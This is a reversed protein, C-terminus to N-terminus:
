SFLDLQRDDGIVKDFNLGLLELIPEAIPRIQKQVYHERDIPSATEGVPEPGASTMVYSILRGPRKSMKRAAAVHPPTTATYSRLPKRLAKRYILLDKMGGERVDSVIRELYEGVDRNAFLRRYLERQVQKALETWDRRVAEMGVFRLEESEGRRLLGVYRKRAGGRSHRMPPLHLKRYLREFELELRSEVGWEARVHEAIERNLRAALRHGLQEAAADEDEGSLVFLSDTDGYLVQFGDDELRKKCWLLMERGFSTIAGALESRHFRCAPAGLVGYFSNMLIKIAHSAVRDGREKAAERRPFLEDLLKPLIGPCRRFAAGNPAVILDEGKRRQPAFGLPDIQFTRILSPYLSKFDFVAVNRYLGPRPELVHGGPNSSVTQNSEVSPAAVQRKHLESLYLFDFAAISGSVRDVPLGTLLSRQVALEVLQLKELIELALRADTLNYEVFRERDKEYNALIAEARHSGGLTKGEGLVKRAVFDLSYDDMKVFSRRLLQIGDLAVRGAILAEYAAWPFRSPRLRLPGPERGLHLEARTHAARNAMVSLDFDVVNWGTLIDPDLERVRRAFGELLDKESAFSVALPPTPSSEPNLLLVESAGCGHLAVSLLRTATPNTEIDLSLVKLLPQCRSPGIRPNEYVRSLRHRSRWPGELQLSGRIGRDILFRMAFRVDAEYCRIGAKQLRRRLAPTDSPKRAQVRATKGGDFTTWDSAAMGRVGLQAAHEAQTADIYFYPVHRDDRVLFSEGNELCGYLHVIPKGSEVRYTPQLIFGNAKLSEM